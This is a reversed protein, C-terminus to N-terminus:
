RVTRLAKVMADVVIPSAEADLREALESRAAVSNMSQLAAVATLRMQVDGHSLYPVVMDLASEGFVEATRMMLKHRMAEPSASDNLLSAYLSWVQGDAYHGLALLARDRIFGQRTEVLEMLIAKPDSAVENLATRSPVEHISTLLFQVQEQQVIVPKDTPDFDQATATSTVIFLGLITLIQTLKKM